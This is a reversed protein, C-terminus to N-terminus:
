WGTGGKRGEKRGEKTEEKGPPYGPTGAGDSLLEEKGM